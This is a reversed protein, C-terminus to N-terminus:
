LLVVNDARHHRTVGVADFVLPAASVVADYDIDPHATLIVVCDAGTLLDRSLPVSELFPLDESRTDPDVRSFDGQRRGAIVARPVYPDHYSCDAGAAVLRQLVNLAPSERVDNVGPKYTLGLVLLRSRGLARGVGNLVQTIRAVVHEPMRNNVTRAHEIFGIGFGLRQEVKWSLYSPDIAICHGGVGPGPWFPMYGFPKTSAAELAEWIDVGISPAIMALENVLAINVQRFTNEILKAMEAERPSSTRVVDDVLAGYFLAALETDAPTVGAVIKPTDRLRRGDGPNIREPSYALAFDHGAVLGTAELLPRVIEETTGPYTTSELVVLQGPRLVAAIDELASRVLSLDPTGDRLPTPVAVLIVDAAILVRPDTSFQARSEWMLDDGAWGLEADSVGSIHSDGQRLGKVKEPDSDVGILGFGEAWAAVLLPVGVYGLGVVGVTASRERIREALGDLSTPAAAPDPGSLGSGSLEIGAACALNWTATLQRGGTIPM